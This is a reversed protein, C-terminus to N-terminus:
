PPGEPSAKRRFAERERLARDFIEQPVMSGRMTSAFEEAALRFDKQDEPAVRTIKLGRKKMEAVSKKDQEPVEKNLFGEVKAASQSLKDRDPESIRNWAKRTIITAGVVPALSVELMFPTKRYWQFALAALPPSPVAEVMGTQLGMMVDSLSLAVPHFGNSKYWQVM